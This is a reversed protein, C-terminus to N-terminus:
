RSVLSTRKIFYRSVGTAASCQKFSSYTKGRFRFKVSRYHKGDRLHWMDQVGRKGKNWPARGKNRKSMMESFEKTQTYSTDHNIQLLKIAEAKKMQGSLMKWAVYDQIKEYKKWLKRHEIAHQRITVRKLNEPADTGGMHKPIIHHKHYIRM